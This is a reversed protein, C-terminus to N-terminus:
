KLLSRAVNVKALHGYTVTKKELRQSPAFLDSMRVTYIKKM